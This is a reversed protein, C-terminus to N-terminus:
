NPIPRWFDDCVECPIGMRCLSIRTKHSIFQSQWDCRIRTKQWIPLNVTQLGFSRDFFISRIKDGSRIEIFILVNTTSVVYKKMVYIDCRSWTSFIFFKNDFTFWHKKRDYGDQLNEAEGM